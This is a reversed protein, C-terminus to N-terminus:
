ICDGVISEVHAFLIQSCLHWTCTCINAKRPFSVCLVVAHKCPSARAQFRLGVHKFLIGTGRRCCFAKLSGRCNSMRLMSLECLISYLYLVSLVSSWSIGLTLHLVSIECYGARSHGAGLYLSYIFYAWGKVMLSCTFLM